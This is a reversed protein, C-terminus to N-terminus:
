LLDSDLARDNFIIKDTPNLHPQHKNLFPLWHKMPGTRAFYNIKRVHYCM